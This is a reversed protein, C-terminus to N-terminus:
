YEVSRTSIQNTFEWSAISPVSIISYEFFIINNNNNILKDAATPFWNKKSMRPLKKRNFSPFVELPPTPWSREFFNKPFLSTPQLLVEHSLFTKSLARFASRHVGSTRTGTNFFFLNVKCAISRHNNFFKNQVNVIFINILKM